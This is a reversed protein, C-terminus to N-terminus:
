ESVSVHGKIDMCTVEQQHTAARRVVGSAATRVHGSCGTWCGQQLLLEVSIQMENVDKKSPGICCSCLHDITAECASLAL